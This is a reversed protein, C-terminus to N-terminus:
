LSKTPQVSPNEPQLFFRPRRVFAISNVNFHIRYIVISDEHQIFKVMWRPFGVRLVAGKRYKRYINSHPCDENGSPDAYNFHAILGEDSRQRPFENTSKTEEYKSRSPDGNTSSPLLWQLKNM